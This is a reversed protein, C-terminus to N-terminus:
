SITGTYEYIFVGEFYSVLKFICDATFDLKRYNVFVNLEISCSEFISLVEKQLSEAIEDSDYYRDDNRSNFEKVLDEQNLIFVKM